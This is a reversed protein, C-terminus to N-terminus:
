AVRQRNQAQTKAHVRAAASGVISRAHLTKLLSASHMMLLASRRISWNRDSAGDAFLWFQRSPGVWLLQARHWQGQLYLRVWDGVGRGDLWQRAEDDAIPTMVESDLLAAPVTDLQPVDLVPPEHRASAVGRTLDRELNQLVGIQTAAIAQHRQLRQALLADFRELAWAYLEPTPQADNCLREFASKAMRLLQRREPDDPSPTVEAAFAFRNICRWLPHRDRDTLTPDSRALRVAAPQLRALLAQVDPPIRKDEAIALFLQKVLEILRPDAMTSPPLPQRTAVAPQAAASDPALAQRMRELEPSFTIETRRSSRVGGTLVMTRYAAPQVGQGDLRASAAAYVRRLVQALPASAIQMFVAQRAMPGPLALAAGRLAKVMVAPTFPNYDRAHDMDGALAAVYSQLERLEHEATSVIVEAVRAAAAEAAVAEDDVLGMSPGQRLLMPKAAAGDRPGGSGLGFQAAVQVRLSAVFEQELRARERHALAVVETAAARLAPSADARLGDHFGGRLSDILQNLLLPARLLEDEVFQRMAPSLPLPPLSEM